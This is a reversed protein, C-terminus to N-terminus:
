PWFHRKQKLAGIKPLDEALGDQAIKIGILALVVGELSSSVLSSVMLIVSFGALCLEVVRRVYQSVKREDM